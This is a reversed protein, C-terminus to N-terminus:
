YSATLALPAAVEIAEGSFAPFILRRAAGVLCQGLERRQLWAEDVAAAAVVGSPRITLRLTARKGDVRLAPDAKLARTVCASFANGNAALVRRLAGEDLPGRGADLEARDPAAAALAADEKRDLLDLLRRDKKGITLQRRRLRERAEADHAGDFGVRGGVGHPEAAGRPGAGEPPAPAPAPAPAAERVLAAAVTPPTADAPAAAPPRRSVTSAPPPWDRPREAKWASLAVAGAALLGAAGAVWLWRASRGRRNALMWEATVRPRCTPDSAFFREDEDRPLVPAPDLPPELPAPPLPAAAAAPAAARAPPAAIRPPV